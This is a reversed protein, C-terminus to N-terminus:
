QLARVCDFEGFAVQFHQIQGSGEFVGVDEESHGADAFLDDDVAVVQAFYKKFVGELM